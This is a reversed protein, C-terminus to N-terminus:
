RSAARGAPVPPGMGQRTVSTVQGLWFRDYEWLRGEPYERHHLHIVVLDGRRAVANETGSM